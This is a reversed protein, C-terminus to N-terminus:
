PVAPSCGTEAVRALVRRTVPVGSEALADLLAGAVPPLTAVRPRAHPIRRPLAAIVADTTVPAGRTLVSGALVVPVAGADPDLGARRAVVWAYDASAAALRAVIDVAVADGDAAARTVEPALSARVREPDPGGRATLLHLMDEVDDRDLHALLRETLVTPSGLGTEARLVARVAEAGLHVAGLAEHVWFGISWSRGDPGRGAIAPGTGAVVAVGVGSPEGCRIAALGDNGFSCRRLGPFRVSACERWFTEDEPWDIGALRFAAGTVDAATVGASAIAETVAAVVAEVAAAPSDAGYIDGNGARGEGVVQGHADGVLAATKSNGADVGLYLEASM